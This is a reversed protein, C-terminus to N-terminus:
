QGDFTGYPFCNSKGFPCILTTEMEWYKPCEADFQYQPLVAFFPLKQGAPTLWLAVGGFVVTAYFLSRIYGGFSSWSTRESLQQGGVTTEDIHNQLSLPFLANFITEDIEVIFVLALANLLLDTVSRTAALWLTGMILLACAVTLKPVFIIALLASRQSQTVGIVKESGEVEIETDVLYKKAQLRWFMRGLRECERIEFIMTMWWMVLMVYLFWYNNIVLNCLEHRNKEGWNNWKTWNFVGSTEFCEAHYDKYLYQADRIAPLTTYSYTFYLILVQLAYNLCLGAVCFCIRVLNIQNAIGDTEGICLERSDHIITYIGAGYVDQELNMWEFKSEDLLVFDEDISEDEDDDELESGSYQKTYSM